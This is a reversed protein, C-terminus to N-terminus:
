TFCCADFTLSLCALFILSSFTLYSYSPLCAQSFAAMLFWSLHAQMSSRTSLAATNLPGSLAAAVSLPWTEWLLYTVPAVWGVAKMPEPSLLWALRESPSM